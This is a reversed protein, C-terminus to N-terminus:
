TIMAHIKLRPLFYKNTNKDNLEVQIWIDMLKLILCM